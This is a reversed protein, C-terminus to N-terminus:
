AAEDVALALALARVAEEGTVAPRPADGRAAALFDHVSAGLPDSGRPTEAFGANLQFPTTNEFTRQMFDISVHGSPYVVRMTRERGDAARSASFAAVMGDQFTIEARSEDALEGKLARSQAEVRLADGQALSLALDLDHIMLDLVVSIDVSRGTWPGQRNAEIRIPKESTSFLGMEAFVIREQHGCALVRRNENAAGIIAEAEQITPAIPKEVYVHVGRELAKVALAAHAEAPAAVTLVDVQSIFEDWHEADFGRAGIKQALELARGTGRDFVGVLEVGESDAYKKAHYGGFVGAGAVGARLVKSM